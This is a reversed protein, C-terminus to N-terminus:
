LWNSQWYSKTSLIMTSNKQSCSSTAWTERWIATVVCSESCLAPWTWTCPLQLSPLSTFMAAVKSFSWSFRKYINTFGVKTSDMLTDRIIFRPFSRLLMFNLNKRSLCIATKESSPYYRYSTYSRVKLWTWVSEWVEKRKEKSCSSKYQYFMGSFFCDRQWEATDWTLTTGPLFCLM